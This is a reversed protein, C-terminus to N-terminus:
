INYEHIEGWDIGHRDAIRDLIEYFTLVPYLVYDRELQLLIDKAIKKEIEEVIEKVIEEIMEYKNM